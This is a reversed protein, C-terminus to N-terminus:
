DVVMKEETKPAMICKQYMYTSNLLPGIRNCASPVELSYEEDCELCGSGTCKSLVYKNEPACTQSRYVKDYYGDLYCHNLRAIVSYSYEECQGDFFDSLLGDLMPNIPAVTKTIEYKFSKMNANENTCSPDNLEIYSVSPNHHCTKDGDYSTLILHTGNYEYKSAQSVICEGLPYFVSSIINFPLCNHAEYSSRSLFPGEHTQYAAIFSVFLTIFIVSCSMV